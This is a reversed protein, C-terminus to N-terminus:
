FFVLGHNQVALGDGRFYPLLNGLPRAFERRLVATARSKGDHLYAM